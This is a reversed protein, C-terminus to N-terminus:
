PHNRGRYVDAANPYLWRIKKGYRIAYNIESCTSDGVYGSADSVVLIEEATDIKRKHLDDLVMKVAYDEKSLNGFHDDDTGSAAGISLVINGELTERLNAKQFDRRFRTSGCLCVIKPYTQGYRAEVAEGRYQEAIPVQVSQPGMCGDELMTVTRREKRRKVKGPVHCGDLDGCAPCARCKDYSHEM